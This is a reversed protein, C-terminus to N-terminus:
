PGGCRQLVRYGGGAGAQSEVLVYDRVPWALPADPWACPTAPWEGQHRRAVTVHPRFRRAETRLGLGRLMAGIGLHLAGLAAPPDSVPAVVLGQAWRELGTFHLTIRPCPLCLAAGLAPLGTCPVQGLFHLTLHLRDPPVPDAAADGSAAAYHAALAAAVDADPWLAIFLRVGAASAPAPPRAATAM